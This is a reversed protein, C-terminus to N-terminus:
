LREIAEATLGTFEAIEDFPCGANKMKQAIELKGAEIGREIGQETGQGTGVM